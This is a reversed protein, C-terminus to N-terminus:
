NTGTLDILRCHWRREAIIVHIFFLIDKFPKLDLRENHFQADQIIAAM